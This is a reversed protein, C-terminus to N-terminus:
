SHGEDNAPHAEQTLVSVGEGQNSQMDAETSGAQNDANGSGMPIHASVRWSSSMHVARNQWPLFVWEPPLRAVSAAEGWCSPCFVWGKRSLPGQELESVTVKSWWLLGAVLLLNVRWTHLNWM